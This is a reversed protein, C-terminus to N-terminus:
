PFHELPEVPRRRRGSTSASTPSHIPPPHRIPPDQEINQQSPASVPIMGRSGANRNRSQEYNAPTSRQSTSTNTNTNTNTYNNNGETSQTSSSSQNNRESITLRSSRSRSRSSSAEEQGNTERRSRSSNRSSPASSLPSMQSSSFSCITSSQVIHASSSGQTGRCISSVFSLADDIQINTDAQTLIRNGFVNDNSSESFTDNEAENRNTRQNRNTQGAHPIFFINTDIAQIGSIFDSLPRSSRTRPENESQNDFNLFPYIPTDQDIEDEEDDDEEDLNDDEIDNENEDNPDAENNLTNINDTSTNTISPDNSDTITDNHAFIEEETNDNENLVEISSISDTENLSDEDNDENEEDGNEDLDDEITTVESAAANAINEEDNEEDDSGYLLEELYNPATPPHAKKRPGRSSSSSGRSQKRGKKTAILRLSHKLDKMHAIEDRGLLLLDNVTPLPPLNNVPISNTSIRLPQAKKCGFIDTGRRYLSPLGSSM